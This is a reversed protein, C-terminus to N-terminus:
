PAPRRVIRARGVVVARSTPCHSKCGYKLRDIFSDCAPHSTGKLTNTRRKRRSKIEHSSPSFGYVCVLALSCRIRCSIVHQLVVQLCVVHTSVRLQHDTSCLNLLCCGHRGRCGESPVSRVVHFGILSEGSHLEARFTQWRTWPAKFAELYSM